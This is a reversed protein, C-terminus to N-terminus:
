AWITSGFIALNMAQFFIASGKL